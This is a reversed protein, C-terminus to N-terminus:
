SPPSTGARRPLVSQSRPLSRGPTRHRASHRGLVFRRRCSRPACRTSGAARAGAVARRFSWPPHRRRAATGSSRRCCRALSSPSRWARATLQGPRSSRLRM